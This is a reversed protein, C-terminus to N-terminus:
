ATPPTDAPPQSASPQSAPPAPPAPAAPAVVRKTSSAALSRRIARLGWWSLALLPLLWWFTLIVFAVAGDIFRQMSRLSTAWADGAARFPTWAPLTTFTRSVAWEGDGAANTARVRWRYTEGPRLEAVEDPWELSTALIKDQSLLLDTFTTDVNRAVQLSYSTAGDVAAWEFFPRVPLGTANAVPRQLAPPNPKRAEPLPRMTVTITSFAARRDLVNLRGQLREIQERVTTLERQVVLIDEMKEARAMLRLLQAETAKLNNIRATTDAFEETVDQAESSETPKKDPAALERVQQFVNEYREVPVRLVAEAIVTNGQEKTASQQIFGGAGVVITTLKSLGTSVDVVVLDIRGTKIIKQDLAPQNGATGGTGADQGTAPKAPAVATPAPAAPAGAGGAPRSEAATAPKVPQGPAAADTRATQPPVPAPQAAPAGGCAALLLVVLSVLSVLAVPRSTPM